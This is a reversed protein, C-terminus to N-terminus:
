AAVPELLCQLLKARLENFAPSSIDRPYPLDVDVIEQIEGPRSKMVVIRQSLFVAEEVSHTVFMVCKRTEAWVRALEAQMVLRTQADLAGFPEDMLLVKPDNALVTAIAVRQRMGGSLESPLANEFGRLGILDVYRSVTSDQESRPMKKLELGFAINQHVTRWPFLAYEQFVLGREPAPGAVRNGDLLIEGEEVPELGAVMRLMTSKGCGSKGIISVFEQEGLDLSVNSIATFKRGAAQAAYTKSLRRISLFDSKSTM